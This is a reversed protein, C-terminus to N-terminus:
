RPDQDWVVFFTKGCKDCLVPVAYAGQDDVQTHSSVWPGRPPAPIGRNMHACHECAVPIFSVDLGYRLKAQQVHVIAGSDQALLRGLVRGALSARSLDSAQCQRYIDTLRRVAAPEEVLIASAKARVDADADQLDAFLSDFAIDALPGGSWLQRGMKEMGLIREAKERQAALNAAEENRERTDEVLRRCEALRAQDGQCDALALERTLDALAPEWQKLSRYSVARNHLIACINFSTSTEPVISLLETYTSVAKKREADSWGLKLAGEWLQRIHEEPSLSAGQAATSPSPQSGAPAAAPPAPEPAPPAPEPVTEPKQGRGFLRNLFGM